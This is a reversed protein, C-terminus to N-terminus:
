EDIDDDVIAWKVFEKLSLVIVGCFFLIAVGLLKLLLSM